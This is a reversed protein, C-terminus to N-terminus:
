NWATVTIESISLLQYIKPGSEVQYIKSEAISGEQIKQFMESSKLVL